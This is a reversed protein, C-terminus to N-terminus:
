PFSKSPLWTIKTKLSIFFDENEYIYRVKKRCRKVLVFNSHITALFYALINAIMSDFKFSSLTVHITRLVCFFSSLFCIYKTYLVICFSIVLWIPKFNSRFLFRFTFYTDIKVRMNKAFLLYAYLFCTGVQQFGCFLVM